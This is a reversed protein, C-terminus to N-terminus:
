REAERAATQEADGVDSTELAELARLDLRAEEVQVALDRLRRPLETTVGTADLVADHRAREGEFLVDVRSVLDNRAREALRRVAQDGFVAELLKQGLL